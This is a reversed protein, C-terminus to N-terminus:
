TRPVIRGRSTRSTIHVLKATKVIGQPMRCHVGSSTHLRRLKLLRTSSIPAIHGNPLKLREIDLGNLMFPSFFDTVAFIAHSGEFAAELSAPHLLDAGVVQVGRAQLAQAAQGSPNRTIARLSWEHSLPLMADIVSSGQTGTAGIVTLIRTMNTARNSLSINHQLIFSSFVALAKGKYLKLSSLPRHFGHDFTRRADKSLIFPNTIAM